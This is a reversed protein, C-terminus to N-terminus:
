ARSQSCECALTAFTFKGTGCLFLCGAPSLQLGRKTSKLTNMEGDNVRKVEERFHSGVIEKRLIRCVGLLGVVHGSPRM